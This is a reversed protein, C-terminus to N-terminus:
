PRGANYHATITGAALAANYVAAEDLIGDLFSTAQSASAVKRGLLLDRSGSWSVGTSYSVTAAQAGDVYVRVQSGNYTGVVHHTTNPALTVSSTAQGRTTGLITTGYGVVFMARNSSDVALSFGDNFDTAADTILYHFGGAGKTSGTRM